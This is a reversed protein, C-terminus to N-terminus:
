PREDETLTRFWIVRYDLRDFNSAFDVENEFKPTLDHRKAVERADDFSAATEVYWTLHLIADDLPETSGLPPPLNDALLVRALEIRGDDQRVGVFTGPTRLTPEAVEVAEASCGVAFAALALSYLARM